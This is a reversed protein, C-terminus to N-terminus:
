VLGLKRARKKVAAGTINFMRGIAEYSNNAILEKLDIKHWDVKYGVCERCKASCYKYTPHPNPKGCKKCLTILKEDYVWNAYSEDFKFRVDEIKAYGYHLERHCNTCVMVCKRLEAVIKTWNAINSSGITFDKESPTVHHFELAQTCKNYGCIGCEGGFAELARNRM